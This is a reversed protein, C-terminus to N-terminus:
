YAIEKQPLSFKLQPRLYLSGYAKDFAAFFESETALEYNVHYNAIEFDKDETTQNEIFTRHDKYDWVRVMTDEDLIGIFETIAGSCSKYFAPLSIEIERETTHTTKVKLNM